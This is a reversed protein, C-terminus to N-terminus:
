GRWWGLPAPGWRRWFKKSGVYRTREVSIQYPLMHPTAYKEPTLCAGDWPPPGLTGLITLRGVRAGEIHSVVVFNQM